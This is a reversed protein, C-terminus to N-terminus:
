KVRTGTSKNAQVGRKRNYTYINEYSLLYRLPHCWGRDLGDTVVYIM